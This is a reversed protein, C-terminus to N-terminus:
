GELARLVLYAVVSTTWIGLTIWRRDKFALYPAVAPVLAWWRQRGPPDKSRIVQWVMAAHAVLVTAGVVIWSILLWTRPTM